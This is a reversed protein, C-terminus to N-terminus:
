AEAAEGSGRDGRDANAAGDADTPTTSPPIRRGSIRTPVIKLYTDREGGAWPRIGRVKRIERLELPDRIWHTRGTVLVSWGEHRDPDIADVQFAVHGHAHQAIVGFPATRFVIVDNLVAFNVPLVTPAADGPVVFAIRGLGGRAILDLCRQSSLPEPIAGASEADRQQPAETGYLVGPTTQLAEALRAVAWRSMYAPNEEVYALYGPTLGCRDAVTELSLGLEERRRAVRRGLEGRSRQAADIGTM